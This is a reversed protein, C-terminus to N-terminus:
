FLERYLKKQVFENNLDLISIGYNDVAIENAGEQILFNITKKNKKVKAYFLATRGDKDKFDIDAGNHLLFKALEFNQFACAIQFPSTDGTLDIQAGGKLLAKVIKINDEGAAIYLPTQGSDDLVNVNAGSKILIHVCKLHNEQAAYHLPTAGAYDKHNLDQTSQILLSLTYYRGLASAIIM